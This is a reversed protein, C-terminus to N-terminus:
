RDPGQSAPERHAQLARLQPLHSDTHAAAFLIWQVGDFVGFVPHPLGHARLDATTARAWAAHPGRDPVHRRLDGRRRVAAHRRALDGGAAAPAERPGLSGHTRRARGDRRPVMGRRGPSGAVNTGVRVGDLADIFPPWLRALSTGTVFAVLLSRSVSELEVHTLSRLQGESSSALRSASASPSASAAQGASISSRAARARGPSSGPLAHGVCPLRTEAKVEQTRDSADYRPNLRSRVSPRRHRSNGASM